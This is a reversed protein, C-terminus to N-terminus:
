WSIASAGGSMGILYSRFFPGQPLPRPGKKNKKRRWGAIVGAGFGKRVHNVLVGIVDHIGGAIKILFDELCPLWVVPLRKLFLNWHVFVCFRFAFM